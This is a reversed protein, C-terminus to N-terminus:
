LMKKDSAIVCPVQLLFFTHATNYIFQEAGGAISFIFLYYVGIQYLGLKRGTRLDSMSILSIKSQYPM